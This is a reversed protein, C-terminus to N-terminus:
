CGVNFPASGAAVSQGSQYLTVSITGSGAPVQGLHFTDSAFAQAGNVFPVTPFWESESKQSTVGNLTVTMSFTAQLAPPGVGALWASWDLITAAGATQGNVGNISFENGVIFSLESVGVNVNVNCHGPLPTFSLVGVLALSAVVAWVLWHAM